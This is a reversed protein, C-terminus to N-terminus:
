GEGMWSASCGARCGHTFRGKGFEFPKLGGAEPTGGRFGLAPIHNNGNAFRGQGDGVKLFAGEGM